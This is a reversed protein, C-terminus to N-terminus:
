RPLRAASRRERRSLERTLAVVDRGAAAFPHPAEQPLNHRAHPVQRRGRLGTFHPAAASGDTARLNGDALGDLTITPVAISPL